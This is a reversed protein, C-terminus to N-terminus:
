QGDAAIIYENNELGAFLSVVKSSCTEETAYSPNEAGPASAIFHAGTPPYRGEGGRVRARAGVGLKKHYAVKPESEDKNTIFYKPSATKRGRAQQARPCSGGAWM